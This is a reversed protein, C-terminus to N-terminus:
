CHMDTTLGIKIEDMTLMINGLLVESVYCVLRQVPWLLVATAKEETSGTQYLCQWVSLSDFALGAVLFTFWFYTVRHFIIM